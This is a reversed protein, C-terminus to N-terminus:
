GAFCPKGRHVTENLESVMLISRTYNDEGYLILKLSECYLELGQDLLIASALFTMFGIGCEFCHM